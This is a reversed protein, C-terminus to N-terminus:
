APGRTSERGGCLVEPITAGHAAEFAEAEIFFSPRVACIVIDRPLQRFGIGDHAHFIRAPPIDGLDHGPEDQIGCIQLLDKGEKVM